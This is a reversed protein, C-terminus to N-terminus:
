EIGVGILGLVLVVLVFAACATLIRNRQMAFVVVTIAVRVMPTAILVYIGLRIIGQGAIDGPADLLSSLQLSNAVKNGDLDRQLNANAAHYDTFLALLLGTAICLAALSVGLQLSRAAWINARADLRSREAAEGGDSGAANRVGENSSGM